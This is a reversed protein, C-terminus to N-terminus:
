RPIRGPTHLYRAETTFPGTYAAIPQAVIVTRAGEGEEPKPRIHRVQEAEVHYEKGNRRYLYVGGVVVDIWRM